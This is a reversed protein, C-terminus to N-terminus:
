PRVHRVQFLGQRYEHTAKNTINAALPLKSQPRRMWNGHPFLHFPAHMKYRTGTKAEARPLVVQCPQNEGHLAEMTTLFTLHHKTSTDTLLISIMCANNQTPAGSGLYSLRACHCM